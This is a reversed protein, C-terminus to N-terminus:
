YTRAGGDRSRAAWTATDFFNVGADIARAVMENALKQDMTGVHDWKTGFTMTGLCLPSVKVGTTGLFRMRAAYLLLPM